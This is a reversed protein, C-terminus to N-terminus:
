ILGVLAPAAPVVGRDAVAVHGDEIVVGGTGSDDVREVWVQFDHEAAMGAVLAMNASDLLSGDRILIVRLTPNGAMAMAMSVRLQEAASCQSFPVGRYTVGTDDVGLGEIPMNAAALAEAKATNLDDLDETLAAQLAREDALEAETAARVVAARVAANTEEVTVMRHRIQELDPEPLLDISRLANFADLLEAANVRAAALQAELDAIRDLELRYLNEAELQRDLAAENSRAAAQAAEYEAALDAISVEETPTGAPTPPMEAVAGELRRVRRGVDTREAYKAAIATDIATPDFGSLGLLVERQEAAKLQTFALPDFTLKGFLNDLLTQPSKPRSGDANEVLLTSTGDPKFNRTVKIDGLDVTVTGKDAGDRVPRPITKRLSAADLVAQVGNLVSTKGQGNRGAIVIMGTDPDPTIDVATLRMFNNATFEIVKM